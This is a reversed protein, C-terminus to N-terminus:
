KPAEAPKPLAKEFLSTWRSGAFDKAAKARAADQQEAAMSEITTLRDLAKAGQEADKQEPEGAFAAAVKKLSARIAGREDGAKVADLAKALEGEAWERAKTVHGLGSYLTM